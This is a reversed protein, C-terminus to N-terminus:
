NMNRKHTIYCIGVGEPVSVYEGDAFIMITVVSVCYLHLSGCVCVFFLPGAFRLITAMYWVKKKCMVYYINVRYSPMREVEVKTHIDEFSQSSM